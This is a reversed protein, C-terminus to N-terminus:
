EDKKYFGKRIMDERVFISRNIKETLSVIEDSNAKSVHNLMYIYKVLWNWHM